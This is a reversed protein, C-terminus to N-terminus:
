LSQLFRHALKLYMVLIKFLDIFYRLFNNFVKCKCIMENITNVSNDTAATVVTRFIDLYDNKGEANFALPHRMKEEEKPCKVRTSRVHKAVEAVKLSQIKKQPIKVATAEECCVKKLTEPGM